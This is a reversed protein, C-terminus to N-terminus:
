GDYKAVGLPMAWLEKGTNADLAVCVEQKAGDVDRAVLTFAKGDAVAFSSFGDTLPTKWIETLGGAPWSELIKESSAGDHNEGRFQPWDSGRASVCFSAAFIAALTSLAISTRM